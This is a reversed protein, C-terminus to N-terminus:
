KEISLSLWKNRIKQSMEDPNHYKVNLKLDRATLKGMSLLLAMGSVYYDRRAEVEAVNANLLEQYADLVDLVTRNGLAEEQQVGDLAIAYAKIQDKSSEIRSKNTVMYEYNGSVTSIMAREAERVKEEAEWRKYKSQRIKARTEGSTYLPVSMNVGWQYTHTEPDKARRAEEKARSASAEFNIQPLLAGKNASVTDKQAKLSSKAAKLDYNHEYAFKLAEDFNKPFAESLSVPEKLNEPTTGIIQIYIARSAALNGEAAIRSSIAASHRAEAQAVDTRTVEGVNFRERTEDLRKKLLKENNKQLNVISEDKLVDLYATSAALLIEQEVEYLAYKQAEVAKDAAKVSFYTSLGNFIPQSLVAAISKQYGDNYQVAPNMDNHAHIDTYGGTLAINPRYGSKAIAVNESVAGLNARSGALTPNHNYADEMAEFVSAAQVKVCLASFACFSWLIIRKM